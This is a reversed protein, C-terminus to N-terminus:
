NSTAPIECRQTLRLRKIENILLQNDRELLTKERLLVIHERQIVELRFTLGENIEIFKELPNDEVAFLQQIVESSVNWQENLTISRTYQITVGILMWTVLVSYFMVWRLVVRNRESHLDGDVEWVLSEIIRDSLDSLGIFM